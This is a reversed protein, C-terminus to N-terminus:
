VAPDGYCESTSAMLFQAGKACALELLNWTGQSNVKMTAVQHKVYGIPSAPSAMHYIRGVDGGPDFPEIVDHEIFSFRPNGRLHAINQRKGTIFNDVGVVENGQSLLLDSLHSGLFGAAGSILIRMQPPMRASTRSM